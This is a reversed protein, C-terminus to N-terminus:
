RYLQKVRGWSSESISTSCELDVWSIWEVFCQGDHLPEPPCLPGAANGFQYSRTTRTTPYCIGCADPGDSSISFLLEPGEPYGPNDLLLHTVAFRSGVPVPSYWTTLNWGSNLVCKQTAIPEGVLCDDEDVNWVSVLNVYGYYPMAVTSYHLWSQVLIGSECCSDFVTGIEDGDLFGDWVWIQDTCVNWYHIACATGASWDQDPNGPPVTARTRQLAWGPLTVAVVLLAAVHWRAWHGLPIRAWHRTPSSMYNGGTLLVSIIIPSTSFSDLVGSDVEGSPTRPWACRTNGKRWSLRQSDATRGL